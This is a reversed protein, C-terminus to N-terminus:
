MGLTPKKGEKSTHGNTQHVDDSQGLSGELLDLFPFRIM